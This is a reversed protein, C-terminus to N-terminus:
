IVIARMTYWMSQRACRSRSSQAKGDTMMPLPKLYAARYITEIDVASLKRPNNRMLREIGAAEVAMDPIAEEPAIEPDPLVRLLVWSEAPFDLDANSDLVTM